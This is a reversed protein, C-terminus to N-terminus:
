LPENIPANTTPATIDHEPVPSSAPAPQAIDAPKNEPPPPLPTEPEPPPQDTAEKRIRYLGNFLIERSRLDVFEVQIRYFEADAHGRLEALIQYDADTTNQVPQEPPPSQKHKKGPVYPPLTHEVFRLKLRTILLLRDRLLETYPETDIPPVFISTVGTFRVLPPITANAIVPLDMISHAIEQGVIAIDGAEIPKEPPTGAPPQALRSGTTDDVEEMPACAALTLVIAVLVVNRGLKFVDKGRRSEASNQFLIM